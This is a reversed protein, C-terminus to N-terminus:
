QVPFNLEEAGTRDEGKLLYQVEAGHTSTLLVDATSWGELARFARSNSKM